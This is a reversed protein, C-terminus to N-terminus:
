AAVKEAKRPRARQARETAEFAALDAAFADFGELWAARDDAETYYHPDRTGSQVAAAYGECFIDKRRAAPTVDTTVEVAGPADVQVACKIASLVAFLDRQRREVWAPGKALLLRAEAIAHLSVGANSAARQSLRLASQARTLEAQAAIVRHTHVAVAVPPLSNSLQQPDRGTM